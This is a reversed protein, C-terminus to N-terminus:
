GMVLLPTKLQQHCFSHITGTRMMLKSRSGILPLVSRQHTTIADYYGNEEETADTFPM